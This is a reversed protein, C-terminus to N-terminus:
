LYFWQARKESNISNGTYEFRIYKLIGSNDNSENGGYLVDGVEATAESGNNIPAKGCIIIGGWDGRKPVDQGSTFVIPLAATGEAMIKAGREILLYAVTPETKSSKVTVGPEITLTVGNKVHVGGAIVYETGTTLVMDSTISGSIVRPGSPTTSTPADDEKSCSILLTSAILVLSALKYLSTINTKM